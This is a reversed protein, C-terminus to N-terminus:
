YPCGEAAQGQAHCVLLLMPRLCVLCITWASSAMRMMILHVAVLMLVRTPGQAHCMLLVMSRLCCFCITWASLVMRMSILHVAVARQPRLLLLVMPTPSTTGM